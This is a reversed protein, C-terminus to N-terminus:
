WKYRLKYFEPLRTCQFNYLTCRFYKSMSWFCIGQMLVFFVTGIFM